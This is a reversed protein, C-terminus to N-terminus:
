KNIYQLPQHGQPRDNERRLKCERCLTGTPTDMFGKGIYDKVGRVEHVQEKMEKVENERPEIQKKLENVKYDLVFKFKELEENKKKLDYIRNEQSSFFLGGM